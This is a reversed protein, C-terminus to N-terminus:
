YILEIIVDLLRNPIMYCLKLFWRDALLVSEISGANALAIVVLGVTKPTQIVRTDCYATRIPSLLNKTYFIIKPNNQLIINDGCDLLPFLCEM